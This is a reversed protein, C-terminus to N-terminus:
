IIFCELTLSWGGMGAVDTGGTRRWSATSENTHPDSRLPLTPSPALLLIWEVQDQISRAACLLRHLPYLENSTTRSALSADYILLFFFSSSRLNIPNWWQCRQLFWSLISPCRYVVFFQEFLHGHTFSENVSKQTVATDNILRLNFREALITLLATM